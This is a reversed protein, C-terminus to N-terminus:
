AVFDIHIIQFLDALYLLQRKSVNKPILSNIVDLADGAKNEILAYTVPVVVLIASRGHRRMFAIVHGNYKGGISVPIYEGKTLIDTFENRIKLLEHLLLLKNQETFNCQEEERKTTIM